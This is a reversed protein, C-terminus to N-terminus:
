LSRVPAVVACYFAISLASFWVYLYCIADRKLNSPYIQRAHRDQKTCSLPLSPSYAISPIFIFVM